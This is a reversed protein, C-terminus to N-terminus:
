PSLTVGSFRRQRVSARRFAQAVVLADGAGVFTAPGRGDFMAWRGDVMSCRVDFM